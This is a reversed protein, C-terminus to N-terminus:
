SNTVSDSVARALNGQAEALLAGMSLLESKLTSMYQMVPNEDKFEGHGKNSDEIVICKCAQWSESSSM